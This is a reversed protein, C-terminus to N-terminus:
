RDPKASSRTRGAGPRSHRAQKPPHMREIRAMATHVLWLFAVFGALALLEM